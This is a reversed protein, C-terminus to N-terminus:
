LDMMSEGTLPRYAALILSHAPDVVFFVCKSLFRREPEYFYRKSAPPRSVVFKIIELGLSAGSNWLLHSWQGRPCDAVGDKLGTGCSDAAM